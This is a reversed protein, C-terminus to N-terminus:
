ISLKSLLQLIGLESISEGDLKTWDLIINIFNSRIWRSNTFLESIYQNSGNYNKSVCEM